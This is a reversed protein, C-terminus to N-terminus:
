VPIVLITYPNNQNEKPLWTLKYSKERFNNGYAYELRSEIEKGFFTYHKNSDYDIDFIDSFSLHIDLYSGKFVPVFISPGKRTNDLQLQFYIQNKGNKYGVM